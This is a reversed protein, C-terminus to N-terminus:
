VNMEERMLMIYLAIRIASKAVTTNSRNDGDGEQFIVTSRRPSLVLLPSLICVRSM